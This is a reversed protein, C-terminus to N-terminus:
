AKLPTRGVDPLNRRPRDLWLTLKASFRRIESLFATALEVPTGSAGNSESRESMAPWEVRFCTIRGTSSRKGRFLLLDFARLLRGPRLKAFAACRLADLMDADAGASELYQFGAKFLNFM